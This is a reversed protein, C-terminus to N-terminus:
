CRSVDQVSSPRATSFLQMFIAKGLTRSSAQSSAQSSSSCLGIEQSSTLLTRDGSPEDVFDSTSFYPLWTNYKCSKENNQSHDQIPIALLCEYLIINRISHSCGNQWFVAIVCQYLSIVTPLMVEFFRRGSSSSISSQKKPAMTKM